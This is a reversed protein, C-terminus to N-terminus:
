ENHSPIGTGGNGASPCIHRGLILLYFKSQPINPNSKPQRSSNNMTLQYELDAM